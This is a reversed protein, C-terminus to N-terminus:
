PIEAATEEQSAGTCLASLASLSPQNMDLFMMMDAAMAAEERALLDRGQASIM